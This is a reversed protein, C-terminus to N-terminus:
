KTFKLEALYHNDEEILKVTEFGINKATSSLSEFDVYLWDFWNSIQDKYKMQFKFNGYYDSNLDIWIEGDDDQYLYKIDTSDCLIKGGPKLLTLAHKLFSELRDLSGAIGIGNMLLLLTDFQEGSYNLFDIDQANLGIDLMHKVSKKSIDICKVNKGREKLLTAHIGSGAGVDLITGDCLDLAMKEIEPMDDYSRFLYAVDIVDDDCIDSSVIIEAPKKSQNFDLIAEGIPDDLPSNMRIILDTKSIVSDLNM